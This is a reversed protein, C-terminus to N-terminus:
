EGNNLWDSTVDVYVEIVLDFVDGIRVGETYAWQDNIDGFIFVLEKRNLWGWDKYVRGNMTIRYNSAHNFNHLKDGLEETFVLKM